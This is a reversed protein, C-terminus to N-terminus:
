HDSTASRAKFNQPNTLPRDNLGEYCMYSNFNETFRGSFYQMYAWEPGRQILFAPETRLGYSAGTGTCVTPSALSSNNVEDSCYRFCRLPDQITQLNLDSRRWFLMFNSFELGFSTGFEESSSNSLTISRPISLHGPEQSEARARTNTVLM